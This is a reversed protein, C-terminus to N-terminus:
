RRHTRTAQPEPDPTRTLITRASTFLLGHVRIPKTALRNTSNKGESEGGGFQTADRAHYGPMGDLTILRADVDDAPAVEVAGYGM